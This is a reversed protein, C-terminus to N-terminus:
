RAGGEIPNSYIDEFAASAEPHPSQKAFLVAQDVNERAQTELAECDAEALIGEALFRSRLIEVPDREKWREVEAPDRYAVPIMLGEAHEGYRYTKAEILSPGEGRRARAVARTVVEHVREADQGDVVEGPIGYGQARDAIDEVSLV